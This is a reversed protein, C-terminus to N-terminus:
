RPPTSSEPESICAGTKLKGGGSPLNKDAIGSCANVSSLIGSGKIGTRSGEDAAAQSVISPGANTDRFRNSPAQYGFPVVQGARPPYQIVPGVNMPIARDWKSANADARGSLTPQLILSASTPRMQHMGFVTEEEHPRRPRDGGASRIMQVQVFIGGTDFFM